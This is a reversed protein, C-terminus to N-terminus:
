RSAVGVGQGGPEQVVGLHLDDAAVPGSRVRLASARAGRLSHLGGVGPVQPFVDALRDLLGDSGV